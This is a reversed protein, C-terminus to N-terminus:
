VRSFDFSVVDAISDRGTALMVLRDIGLAVGACDPLGHKLAALFLEDIPLAPLDRQKREVLNNEFRQRQEGEDQLEHFGNANMGVTPRLNQSDIINGRWLWSLILNTYTKM